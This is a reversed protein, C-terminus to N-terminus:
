PSDGSPRSSESDPTVRTAGYAKPVYLVDIVGDMGTTTAPARPRMPASTIL